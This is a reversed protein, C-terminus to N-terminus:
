VDRSLWERFAAEYVLLAMETLSLVKQNRQLMNM